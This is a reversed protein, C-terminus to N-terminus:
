PSCCRIAACFASDKASDAGIALSQYRPPTAPGQSIARGMDRPLALGILVSGLVFCAANVALGALPGCLTVLVGGIAPGVTSALRETMGSLGTARELPVRGREAAEPVMVAKALDGPGRATGVLAVLVLLLPLSLIDLARCVPVAAIAVASALDTTWSVIRPGIRDVVPGTFAKAVVYPTMECFTVLGTQAASGTTVLVFWPLAITSIRTGTFSVAIAALLGGLPRKDSPPKTM